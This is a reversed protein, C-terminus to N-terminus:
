QLLLREKSGDPNVILIDSGQDKARELVDMVRLARVLTTVKNFGTRKALGTLLEADKRPLDATLRVTDRVGRATGPVTKTAM